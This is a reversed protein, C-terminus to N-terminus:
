RELGPNVLYSTFFAQFVASTALCYWIWPKILATLRFMRPMHKVLIATRIVWMNYFTNSMREQSQYELSCNSLPWMIAPVLIMMAVVAIWLPVSFTNSVALLCSLPGSSPIYWIYQSEHHPFSPEWFHMAEILLPTGGIFAESSGLLANKMSEHIADSLITDTKLEFPIIPTFNYGKSFASM